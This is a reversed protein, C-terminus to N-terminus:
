SKLYFLEKLISIKNIKTNPCYKLTVRRLHVRVAINIANSVDLYLFILMICIPSLCLSINIYYMYSQFISRQQLTRQYIVLVCNSMNQPIFILVHKSCVYKERVICFRCFIFSRAFGDKQTSREPLTSHKTGQSLVLRSESFILILCHCASKLSSYYSIILSFPPLYSFSSFISYVQYHRELM